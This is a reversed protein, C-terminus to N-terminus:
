EGYPASGNKLAAEEKVIGGRDRMTVNRLANSALTRVSPTSSVDYPRCLILRFARTRRSCVGRDSHRSVRSTAM